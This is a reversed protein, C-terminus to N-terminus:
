LDLWEQLEVVNAMFVRNDRPEDIEEGITYGATRYINELSERGGKFMPILFGFYAYLGDDTLISKRNTNVLCYANISLGEFEPFTETDSIPVDLASVPMMLFSNSNINTGFIELNTM